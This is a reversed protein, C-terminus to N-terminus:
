EDLPPPVFLRSSGESTRSPPAPLQESPAQHPQALRQDREYKIFWTFGFAADLLVCVGLCTGQQALLFVVTLLGCLITLGLATNKSMM